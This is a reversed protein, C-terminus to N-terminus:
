FPPACIDEDIEEIIIKQIIPQPVSKLLCKLGETVAYASTKCRLIFSLNRTYDEVEFKILYIKLDM